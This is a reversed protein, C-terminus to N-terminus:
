EYIVFLTVMPHLNTDYVKFVRYEAVDQDMVRYPFVYHSSLTKIFKFYENIKNIKKELYIKIGEHCIM